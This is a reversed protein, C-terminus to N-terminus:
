PGVVDIDAFSFRGFPNMRFGRVERRIATLVVSHAIPVWPAQDHVIVQAQRYLDVRRAHDTTRAAEAVLADYTPGCWKAINSDFPVGDRCALLSGLFNDPDGNDSTEGIFAMGPVGALLRDVYDAWPVTTLHARIGIRSLDDAVMEAMRESDPNYPRAVPMYWIDADFGAGYGAEVMLRQAAVVDHSYPTIADDYSWLTPPLPNKAEVALGGYIARLIVGKDIAMNVARRVRVDSFPPRSADMTMYGVNLAGQRLLVLDPDRAIRDIAAPTPFQM